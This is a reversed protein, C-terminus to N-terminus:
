NGYQRTKKSTKNCSGNVCARNMDSFVSVDCFEIEEKGRIEVQLGSGRSFNLKNLLIVQIFM